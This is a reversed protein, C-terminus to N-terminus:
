LTVPLGIVRRRKRADNNEAPWGMWRCAPALLGARACDVSLAATMRDLFIGQGEEPYEPRLSVEVFRLDVQRVRFDEVPNGAARAVAMRVFDPFLVGTGEGDARPLRLGDDGRGEIRRIRRFVSGCACPPADDPEDTLVDDLRYRVVPQLTRRFDTLVPHYRGGGLAEREVSVVDENWHLAGALCTAALFGESAQYVEEARVGFTNEVAARDDADFVEAVAVIRAPSVRLRGAAYEAAVQARQREGM